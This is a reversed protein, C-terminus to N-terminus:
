PTKHAIWALEWGAAPIAAAFRVTAGGVVLTTLDVCCSIFDLGDPSHLIPIINPVSAFNPTFVIAKSTDNQALSETGSQAANELAELDTQTITNAAQDGVLIARANTGQVARTMVTVANGVMTTVLVNEANTFLPGTGTPYITLVFPTAPFTAGGAPALTM